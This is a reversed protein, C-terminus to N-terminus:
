GAPEIEAAVATEGEKRREQHVAAAVPHGLDGQRAQGHQVLRDDIIGGFSAVIQNVLM